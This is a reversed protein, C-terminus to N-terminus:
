VRDCVNIASSHSNNLKWQAKYVEDKDLNFRNALLIAEGYERGEIKQYFLISPSTQLLQYLKYNVATTTPTDESWTIM